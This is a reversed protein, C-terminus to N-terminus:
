LEYEIVVLGLNVDVQTITARHMKKKIKGDKKIDIRLKEEGILKNLAEINNLVTAHCIFQAPLHRTPYNPDLPEIPKTAGKESLQVRKAITPPLGVIVIEADEIIPDTLHYEAM